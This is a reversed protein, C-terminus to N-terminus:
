MGRIELFPQMHMFPGCWASRPAWGAERLWQEAQRPVHAKM